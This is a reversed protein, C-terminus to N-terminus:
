RKELVFRHLQLTLDPQTALDRAAAMAAPAWGEVELGPMPSTALGNWSRHFSRLSGPANVRELFAELKAHHADDHQPYIQWVFPKGAWLARVLSDEGRVVNLHSAWLLHDYDRQTLHPLWTIALKGHQQTEGPRDNTKGLLARVAEHTRGATVLLRTAKEAGALAELLTRLSTPEYCFLSVCQEGAALSVGHRALWAQQQAADFGRRRAELNQERLLGGTRPTFGPYFFHKTLGAGPGNLVPSPLAHMREVYPEASLYELNIWVSPRSQASKHAMASVFEPPLECGFAEIVVDGPETATHQAAWALVQVGSCGEPAMWALASADDTWLRVQEGRTALDAALRWCVGIDGYNDIVKCFIDWHM